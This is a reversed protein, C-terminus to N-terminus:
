APLTSSTPLVDAVSVCVTFQRKIRVQNTIRPRVPQADGKFFLENMLNQSRLGLWLERQRRDNALITVTRLKFPTYAEDNEASRIPHSGHKQWTQFYRQTTWLYACHHFRNARRFVPREISVIPKGGL